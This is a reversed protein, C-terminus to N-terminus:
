PLSFRGGQARYLRAAVFLRWALYLASVALLVGGPIALWTLWPSPALCALAALHMGFQREAAADPFFDKMNALTTDRLGIQAQLHFWALFPVIKLLMGNVVSAAFGILYLVGVLVELRASALAPKALPVSALVCALILTLMGLRWYRLTTDGLKRRRRRQLDLTTLAFVALALAIAMALLDVGRGAVGFLGALLWAALLMALLLGFHRTLWTPYNPTIQLMPVVQCASGAVLLGVWGILGLGAHRDVLVLAPASPWLGILWAVLALGLGVTALLFLIALRMAQRTASAPARALGLLGIMTFGALATSCSLAGATLAWTPGDLGWALLPVGPLLLGLSLRGTLTVGPLAGGAAVPAMQTLAGLMTMGLYGVTVLHTLALTDAAWRTASWSQWTLAALLGAGALFLPALLFFGLPIAFPPGQDLRLGAQM